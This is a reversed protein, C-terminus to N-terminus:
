GAALWALGALAALMAALFVWGWIRYRQGIAAPDMDSILYLRRGQPRRMVHAEPAADLERQQRTVERKAEARAAEWEALDIQGDGDTDFRRLLEEHDDKWAALLDRVQRATDRDPDISGITAFDGLVYIPDNKLLSWQTTRRDGQVLVDRRGVMMEAEEPDVACVGSGDELLFSADSAHDSRHVWNADQREEVRIRYWETM